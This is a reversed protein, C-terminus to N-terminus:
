RKDFNVILIFKLFCSLVVVLYGLNIINMDIKMDTIVVLLLMMFYGLFASVQRKEMQIAWGKSVAVSCYGIYWV